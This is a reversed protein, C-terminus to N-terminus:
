GILSAQLGPSLGGGGGLLQNEAHYGNEDSTYTTQWVWGEPTTWRAVGQVRLYEDPTGAKELTGSEQRFTGDSLEYRCFTLFTETLGSDVHKEPIVALKREL